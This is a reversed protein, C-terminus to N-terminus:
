SALSAELEISGVGALARSVVCDAKAQEAFQQFQAEDIGPVRGETKLTMSEITPKGDINRLGARASTEISEPAHGEQGLIASLAMTFCGAHAAAILEEPNTGEGDEFRSKFSFPGEFLGGEGVTITGGGGQLDGSWRASGSRSAM